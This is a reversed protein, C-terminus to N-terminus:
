INCWVKTSKMRFLNGISLCRILHMQRNAEWTLCFEESHRIQQHNQPKLHKWHQLKSRTLFNSTESFWIENWM